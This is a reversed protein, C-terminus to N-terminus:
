NRWKFFFSSLRGSVAVSIGDVMAWRIKKLQAQHHSREVMLYYGLLTIFIIEDTLKWDNAQNNNITPWCHVFTPIQCSSISEVNTFVTSSWASRSVWACGACFLYRRRTQSTSLHRKRVAQDWGGGTLLNIIASLTTTSSFSGLGLKGIIIVIIQSSPKTHGKRGM